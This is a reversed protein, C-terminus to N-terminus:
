PRPKTEVAVPVTTLTFISREPVVLRRLGEDVEVGGVRECDEGRSTRYYSAPGPGEGPELGKVEVDLQVDSELRSTGVLTFERRDASAFGILRLHRMPDHWAAYVDDPDREPGSVVVRRWGPRVFRYVQKAAFYRKKPEHAGTERDTALLGYTAWAGDHEHLNDFADWAIGASFGDRLFGLLRRTSRWAFQWEILGTQDLDGYETMWLRAEAHRSEAVARALAAHPTEAEYWAGGGDGADGDGYTHHSFVAIRGVLDPDDLLARHRELSVPPSDCMVALTVDGLGAAAMKDAVARVAARVDEDRVRPGEPFGLNTENFPAFLTFRLGERERAWRALGVVMEAYAELDALTEGDPGTWAAPVRGSVNLHVEAGKEQLHRFTAWCDSFVRSRYVSALYEPAWTGDPRRAAPDLWDAKGYCDLRVLSAGLDEVLRDLTPALAGGRWQAPTVNVGFGDIRQLPKSADLTIRLRLPVEDGAAPGPVLVGAAGAALVAVALSCRFRM